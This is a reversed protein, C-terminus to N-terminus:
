NHTMTHIDFSQEVTVPFVFGVGKVSVSGTVRMPGDYSGASLEEITRGDLATMLEFTRSSHQQIGMIESELSTFVRDGFYVSLDFSLALSSDSPNEVECVMFFEYPHTNIQYERVQLSRAIAKSTDDIKFQSYLYIGAVIVIIVIPVLVIKKDMDSFTMKFM